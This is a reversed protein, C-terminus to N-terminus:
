TLQSDLVSSFQHSTQAHTDNTTSSHRLNHPKRVKPIQIILELQFRDTINGWAQNLRQLTVIVNRASKAVIAIHNYFLGHAKRKALGVSQDCGGLAAALSQHDCVHFPIIRTITVPALQDPRHTLQAINLDIDQM